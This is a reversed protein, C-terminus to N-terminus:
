KTSIAGILQHYRGHDIRHLRALWGALQRSAPTETTPGQAASFLSMFLMLCVTQALCTFNM